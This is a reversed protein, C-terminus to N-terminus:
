HETQVCKCQKFVFAHRDEKDEGHQQTRLQLDGVHEAIGEQVAEIVVRQEGPAKDYLM